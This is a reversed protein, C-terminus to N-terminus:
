ARHAECFFLDLYIGEELLCFGNFPHAFVFDLGFRPCGEAVRKGNGEELDSSRPSSLACFAPCTLKKVQGAKM